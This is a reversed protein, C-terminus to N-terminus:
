DELFKHDGDCFECGKYQSFSPVSDSQHGCYDCTKLEEYYSLCETCLYGDGFICISEPNSCSTCGAPPFADIMEDVSRFTQEDLLEYRDYSTHCEPCTIDENDQTCSVEENCESCVFQVFRHTNNCVRCQHSVLKHEESGTVIVEAIVADQRCEECNYIVTGQAKLKEIEPKLQALLRTAYFLNQKSLQRESFELKWSHLPGFLSVWDERMFRNLAFWAHAQQAIITLVLTDNFQAHHFHVVRNRHRRVVNFAEKAEKKLPTDLVDELRACAEDYTVSQFDGELYKSRIIRKGSCVLSWHENLLPVKLMIEVATWFSIVSYKYKKKVFEDQAKTLFDLGNEILALVDGSPPTFKDQVIIKHM